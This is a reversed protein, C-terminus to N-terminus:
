SRHRHFFSISGFLVISIFLLIFIGVVLSSYVSVGSQEGQTEIKVTEEKLKTFEKEGSTVGESKIKAFSKAEITVGDVKVSSESYNVFIKTGDEYIVKAIDGDGEHSKIAVDTLDGLAELYLNYTNAMRTYISSFESAYSGTSSIDVSDAILSFYPLFGFEIAHLTQTTEDYFKNDPISTCAAYGHVLMSYFPVAEDTYNYGSVDDPINRLWDASSFTYDSGGDVSVAGLEKKAQLLVNKWKSVTELRTSKHSNGFDAYVFSGLLTENLGVKGYEKLVPLMKSNERDTVVDPSFLFQTNDEISKLVQYRNGIALEGENYGSQDYDALLQNSELFLQGGGNKLKEALNEMEEKTGLEGALKYKTPYAGYGESFVGRYNCLVPVGELLDMIELAQSFTTGSMYKDFILINENYGGFLDLALPMQENEVLESKTLIGENEMYERLKRAMGSYNAEEGDLFQYEVCATYKEMEEEYVMTDDGSQWEGNISSTAVAQRCTFGAGIRNIPIVYGSPSFTVESMAQGSSVYAICAEEGIKIGFYPIAQNSLGLSDKEQEWDLDPTLSSYTDAQYCSNFDGHEEKFYTLAGCGDPYLMYGEKTDDCAGFYPLLDVSVLAVASIEQMQAIQIKLQLETSKLTQTHSRYKEKVEDSVEDSALIQAYFGKEGSAGLMLREMEDIKESLEECIFSIGYPDEMEDLIELMDDFVKMAQSVNERYKEPIGSDDEIEKFRKNQDRVKEALVKCFASVQNGADITEKIGDEPIQVKLGYEDLLFEIRISMDFEPISIIYAFGNKMKDTEIEYDVSELFSSSTKSSFSQISTYCLSLLSKMEQRQIETADDPVSEDPLASDWIYGTNRNQVLIRAEEESYYLNLGRNQSALVFGDEGPNEYEVFDDAAFVTTQSCFVLIVCLILICKRKVYSIVQM